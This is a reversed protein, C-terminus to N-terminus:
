AWCRIIVLGNHAAVVTATVTPIGYGVFRVVRPPRGLRTWLLVGTETVVTVLLVSAFSFWVLAPFMGVAEFGARMVPNLEETREFLSLGVLTTGADLSKAVTM